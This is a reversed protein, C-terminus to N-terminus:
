WWYRGALAGLTFGTLAGFGFYGAPSYIPTTDVPQQVAIALEALSKRTEATGSAVVPASLLYVGNPTVSQLIGPYKRGSVHHAIVPRGVLQRAVPYLPHM